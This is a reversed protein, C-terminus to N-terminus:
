EARDPRGFLTWVIQSDRVQWLQADRQREYVRGNWGHEGGYAGLVHVLISFAVSIAFLAFVARHRRVAEFGALLPIMLFPVVDCLLRPGFSFGGGWLTRCAYLVVYAGAAVACGAAVERPKRLLIAVGAALGFLLFPSFVFLGRSPSFLLGMLVRLHFGNFTAGRASNGGLATGYLHLYLHYTPAAVLLVGLIFWLVRRRENLLVWAALIAIPVANTPRCFFAWGAALGALLMSSAKREPELLFFLMLLLSLCSPGHTWLGQSASSMVSTGFAYAGTVWLSAWLGAQRRAIMWLVMASLAAVIAASAKEMANAVPHDEDSGDDEYYSDMRSGYLDPVILYAAAYVPLATFAPGLPYSSLWRDGVRVMCYRKGSIIHPQFEDMDLDHEKLMSIPLVRAPVTDGSSGCSHNGVYIALAIGWVLAYELGRRLLPKM